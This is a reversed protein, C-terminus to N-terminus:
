KNMYEAFVILMAQVFKAYSVVDRIYYPRKSWYCLIRVFNYNSVPEWLCIFMQM